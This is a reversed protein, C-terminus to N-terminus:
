SPPASPAASKPRAPAGAPAGGFETSGMKDLYHMVKKGSGKGKLLDDWDKKFKAFQETMLKKKATKELGNLLKVMEGLYQNISDIHQRQLNPNQKIIDTVRRRTEHFRKAAQARYTDPPPM